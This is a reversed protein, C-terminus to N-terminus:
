IKVGDLSGYRHITENYGGRTRVVYYTPYEAIVTAQRPRMLEGVMKPFTVKQGIKLKLRANLRRDKERTVM